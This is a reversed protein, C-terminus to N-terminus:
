KGELAKNLAARKEQNLDATEFAARAQDKADGPLSGYWEAAREPRHDAFSQAVRPIARDAGSRRPTQPRIRRRCRPPNQALTGVRRGARNRITEAPAVKGMGARVRPEEVHAQAFRKSDHIRAGAQRAPRRHLSM